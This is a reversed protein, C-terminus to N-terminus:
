SLAAATAVAQFFILLQECYTILYERQRSEAIQLVPNQCTLYYEDNVEVLGAYDRSIYADCMQIIYRVGDDDYANDAYKQDFYCHQYQTTTIHIIVEEEPTLDDDTIGSGSSGCGVLM